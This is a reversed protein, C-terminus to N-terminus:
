GAGSQILTNERIAISHRHPSHQELAADWGYKAQIDAAIGAIVRDVPPALVYGLM